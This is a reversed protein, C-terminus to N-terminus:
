INHKVLKRHSEELIEAGKSLIDDYSLLSFKAILKAKILNDLSKVDMGSSSADKLTKVLQIKVSQFINEKISFM